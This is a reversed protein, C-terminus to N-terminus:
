GYRLILAYWFLINFRCCLYSYCLYCFYDHRMMSTDQCNQYAVLSRDFLDIIRSATLLLSYDFDVFKKEIKRKMATLMAERSNDETM